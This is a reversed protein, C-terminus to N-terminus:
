KEKEAKVKELQSILEEDIMGDIPDYGYMEQFRKISKVTKKGPIGDVASGKFGIDDLLQQTKKVTERDVQANRTEAENMSDLEITNQKMAEITDFPVNYYEALEVIVYSRKNYAADWVNRHKAYDKDKDYQEGAEIQSKVGSCYTQCLYQINLDEFIANKYEEYFEKEASVCDSYYKIEEDVSMTNMESVSYRDAVVGRANYSAVIDELFEETTKLVKEEEVVEAVEEAEETTEEESDSANGLIEHIAKDLEKLEKVTMDELYSYDKATEVEVDGATEEAMAVVSFSGSLIFSSILVM